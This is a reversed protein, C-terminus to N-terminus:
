KSNQDNDLFFFPETFNGKEDIYSYLCIEECNESGFGSNDEFYRGDPQVIWEFRAKGNEFPFIRCPYKVYEILTGKLEKEWDGGVYGPYKIFDGNRNTIQAHLKPDHENRLCLNVDRYGFGNSANDYTVYFGGGLDHKNQPTQESEKSPTESRSGFLKKLIHM